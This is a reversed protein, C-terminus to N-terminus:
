VDQPRMAQGSPAHCRQAHYAVNRWVPSSLRWTTGALAPRALIYEVERLANKHGDRYAAEHRKELSRHHERETQIVLGFLRIM